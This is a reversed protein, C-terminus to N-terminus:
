VEPKPQSITPAAHLALKLEQIKFYTEGIRFPVAIILDHMTLNLTGLSGVQIISARM